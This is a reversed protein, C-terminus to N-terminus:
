RGDADVDFVMAKGRSTPSWGAEIVSAVAWLWVRCDNPDTTTEFDAVLISYPDVPKSSDGDGPTRLKRTHQM